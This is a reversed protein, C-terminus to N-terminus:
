AFQNKVLELYHIVIENIGFVKLILYVGCIMLLIGVVHNVRILLKPNIYRKIKNAILAKLVDTSFITGLTGAFFFLIDDKQSGYNASMAAMVTIWFIWVFPNMINLFYGKLIYTLPGAFKIQVPNNNEDLHTKHKFTYIGFGILIIGGIIGIYMYNAGSSVLQMVGMFCLAVISLDSLFIGSALYLAQRMGRHISTQILAFMGPGLLAALTLGLIIGQILPHM